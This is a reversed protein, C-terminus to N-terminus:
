RHLLRSLFGTVGTAALPRAEARAALKATVFQAMRQSASREPDFSVHRELFVRAAETRFAPAAGHARVLATLM